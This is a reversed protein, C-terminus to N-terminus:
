SLDFLFRQYQAQRIVRFNALARATLRVEGERSLSYPDAIVDISPWVPQVAGRMAGRCFVAEQTNNTSHEAPVYASVGAWGLKDMLWELASQVQQDGRYVAAAQAYTAAGMLLKVDGVVNAYRGDVRGLAAM